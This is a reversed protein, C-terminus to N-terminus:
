SIVEPDQFVDQYEVLIKSIIQKEDESLHSLDVTEMISSHISHDNNYTTMDDRKKQVAQALTAIVAMGVQKNRPLELRECSTNILKVTIKPREQPLIKSISRAIYVGNVGLEVPEVILAMNGNSKQLDLNSHVQCESNRSLKGIIIVECRPPITIKASNFVPIAQRYQSERKAFFHGQTDLEPSATRFSDTIEAEGHGVLCSDSDSKLLFRTLPNKQTYLGSGVSQVSERCPPQQLLPVKGNQTLLVRNVIDVNIKYKTLFDLGLIGDQKIEMPCVTFRHEYLERNDFELTFVQSGEIELEHGTVWTAAVEASLLKSRSVGPKVVSVTAGTDVIFEKLENDINVTVM